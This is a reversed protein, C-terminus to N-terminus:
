SSLVVRVATVIFGCRRASAPIYLYYLTAHAKSPVPRLTRSCTCSIDEVQGTSISSRPNSGGRRQYASFCRTPSETKLRRCQLENSGGCFGFTETAWRQRIHNAHGRSRHPREPTSRTNCRPHDIIPNVPGGCMGCPTSAQAQEAHPRATQGPASRPRVRVPFPSERRTGPGFSSFMNM